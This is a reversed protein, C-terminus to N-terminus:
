RAGLSFPVGVFLGVRVDDAKSDWGFKLGGRFKREEDVFFYVPVQVGVVDDEIDYAAKIEIAFPSAGTLGFLNLTRIGGYIAHDIDREPPGFVGQVCEGVQGPPAPPCLIRESPAEWSRRYEYGLSVFTAGSPPIYGLNLAGYYSTRRREAEQFSAPDRFEFDEIGFGGVASVLFRHPRLPGTAPAAPPTATSRFISLSAEAGFGGPVGRDTLLAGQKTSKDLPASLTVGFQTNGFGSRHDVDTSLTLQAATDDSNALLQFGSNLLGMRPDNAPSREASVAPAAEANPQVQAQATSAAGLALAIISYRM